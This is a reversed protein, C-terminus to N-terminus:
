ISEITIKSKTKGAMFSEMSYEVTKGKKCRADWYRVKIVAELAKESHAVELFKFPTESNSLVFVTEM